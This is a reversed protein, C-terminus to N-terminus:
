TQYNLEFVSQFLTEIAEWSPPGTSDYLQRISRYLIQVVQDKGRGIQEGLHALRFQAVLTPVPPAPNETQQMVQSINFALMSLTLYSHISQWSRVHYREWAFCQKTEEIAQEIRGRGLYAELVEPGTWTLHDTILVAKRYRRKRPCWYRVCVAKVPGVGVLEVLQQSYFLNSQGRRKYTRMRQAFFEKVTRKKGGVWVESNWRARTVFHYGLTGLQTLFCPWAYAADFVVTMGGYGWGLLESLMEVALDLKSSAKAHVLEKRPRGSPRKPHKQNIKVRFDLWGQMQDGFFYLAVLVHGLITKKRSGCRGFSSGEMKEGHVQAMTDDLVLLDRATRRKRDTFQSRLLDRLDFRTSRLLLYIAADEVPSVVDQVYDAMQAVSPANLWLACLVFVVIRYTPEGRRVIGYRKLRRSLTLTNLAQKFANVRADNRPISRTTM